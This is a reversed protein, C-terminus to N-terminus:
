ECTQIWQHNIVIKLEKEDLYQKRNRNKIKVFLGQNYAETM